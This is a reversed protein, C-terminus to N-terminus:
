AFALAEFGSRHDPLARLQDGIPATQSLGSRSSRPRSVLATAHNRRVVVNVFVPVIRACLVSDDDGGQDFGTFEVPDFRVAIQGGDQSGNSQHACVLLM